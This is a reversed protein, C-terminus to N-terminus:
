LRAGMNYRKKEINNFPYVVTAFGHKLYNSSCQIIQAISESSGDSILRTLSREKHHSQNPNTYQYLNNPSFIKNEKACKNLIPIFLVSFLLILTNTSKHIYLMM